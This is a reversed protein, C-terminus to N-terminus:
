GRGYLRGNRETPEFPPSTWEALAGTPQVDMHAYLLVTPAGAPAQWTAIVAPQGGAEVIHVDAAGARTAPRAVEQAAERVDGARAPDSSISPIRALAELDARAGPLVDALATRLADTSM